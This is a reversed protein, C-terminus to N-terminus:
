HNKVTTSPENGLMLGYGRLPGHLVVPVAGTRGTTATRGVAAAYNPHLQMRLAYPPVAGTGDTNPREGVAVACTPRLQVRSAYQPV